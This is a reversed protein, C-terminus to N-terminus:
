KCQHPSVLHYVMTNRQKICIYVYIYIYIYIYINIQLYVYLIKVVPGNTCIHYIVCYIFCWQQNCARGLPLLTQSRNVLATTRIWRFVNNPFTSSFMYYMGCVLIYATFNNPFDSILFSALSFFKNM